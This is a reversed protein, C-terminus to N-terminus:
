RGFHTDYARHLMHSGIENSQELCQGIGGPNADDVQQTPTILEADALEDVGEVDRLVADGAVEAHELRGPQDIVIALAFPHVIGEVRVEGRAVFVEDRGDTAAGVALWGGAAVLLAELLVDPRALVALDHWAVLREKPGMCADICMRAYRLAVM